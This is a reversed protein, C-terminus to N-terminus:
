DVLLESRALPDGGKEGIQALFLYGELQESTLAVLYGPYKKREPLPPLSLTESITAHVLSDDEFAYDIHPFLGCADKLAAYTQSRFTAYEELRHRFYLEGYFIRYGRKIYAQRIEYLAANYLNKSKFAAEDLIWAEPDKRGICHQEVLQM